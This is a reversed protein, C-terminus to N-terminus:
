VIRALIGDALLFGARTFCITEGDDTLFGHEVFQQIPDGALDDIRYGTTEIFNARSIGEVRRLNLIATERARSEPDLVEAQCIPSEGKEVREMYTTLPRLNLTRRNNQFAAAGTGFGYYPANAWYFLNHGCKRGGRAFNSIEYQRWGQQNLRDMLHEYMTAEINEDIPEVIGLKRQKWLPTGKEYTLGYASIHNPELTLATDLDEEWEKQTQGPIGFILDISINDFRQRLLDIARGVSAPDHNRELQMLLHPRFSQAGLSVRNVGHDALIAVKEATLTNPNSEVTFEVDPSVQFWHNLRDLYRDLQEASVYTPTGGGVFITEVATGPTLQSAMERDLASLFRDIEDDQGAVSAFDCYGCKHACFPIHIYAARPPSLFFPAAPVADSEGTIFDTADARNM